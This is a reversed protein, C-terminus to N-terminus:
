FNCHDYYKDVYISYYISGSEYDPWESGNKKASMNMLKNENYFFAIIELYADYIKNRPVGSWEALATCIRDQSVFDDGLLYALYEKVKMRNRSSEKLYINGKDACIEGEPPEAGEEVYAIGYDGYKELLERVRRKRSEKQEKCKVDVADMYGWMDVMIQHQMRAERDAYKYGCYAKGEEYHKKIANHLRKCRASWKKENRYNGVRIKKSEFNKQSKFGRKAM